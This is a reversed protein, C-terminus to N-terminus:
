RQYMRDARLNGIRQLRAAAAGGEAGASKYRRARTMYEWRARNELVHKLASRMLGVLADGELANPGRRIMSIKNTNSYSRWRLRGIIGARSECKGWLVARSSTAPLHGISHLWLTELIARIWIVNRLCHWRKRGQYTIM